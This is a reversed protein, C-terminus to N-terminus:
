FLGAKIILFCFSFMSFSLGLSGHHSVVIDYQKSIELLRLMKAPFSLKSLDITNLGAAKMQEYIIGTGYLFVFSNDDTSYMGIDKNLVEIGGVGGSALLNLVKM